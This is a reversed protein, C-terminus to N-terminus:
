RRWGPRRDRSRRTSWSTPITPSNRPAGTPRTRALVTRVDPDRQKVTYPGTGMANRVAFTEEKDKFSQPKTVNHKESSAKSMILIATTHTPAPHSQARGTIIHVTLPDIAKVEKISSIYAKFDSSSSLARNYSFVVDDATFPTGDSFKVDTRLKYELRRVRDDEM